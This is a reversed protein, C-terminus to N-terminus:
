QYNRIRAKKRLKELYSNITGPPMGEFLYKEDGSALKGIIAGLAGIGLGWLLAKAESSLRLDFSIIDASTSTPPDDGEVYGMAVGTAAGVLFGIGAKSKRKLKILKIDNIEVSVDSGSERELLLLSNEKVAILEGRVQTGDKKQITLDAGKREKAFLSGPLTLLSFVLFLLIPKKMENRM